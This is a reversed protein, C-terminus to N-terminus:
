RLLIKHWCRCVANPLTFIPAGPSALLGAKILHTKSWGIRNDFIAQTGSPLLAQRETESLDFFGALHETADRLSHEQKDMCYQLLPLMITQFDPINSM